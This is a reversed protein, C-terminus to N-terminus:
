APASSVLWIAGPLRVSAGDLHATLAEHISAIAAAVIEAPQGRLWSNVAGIQTSQVVAEELGRGAADLDLDFSDLRPPAWGAATLVEAVREPDAFAFM